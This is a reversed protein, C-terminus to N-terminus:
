CYYDYELKEQNYISIDSVPVCYIYLPKCKVVLPFELSVPTNHLSLSPIGAVTVSSVSSLLM